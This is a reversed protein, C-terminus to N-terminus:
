NREVYSSLNKIQEISLNTYKSIPELELGDKLMATATEKSKQLSGEEFSIRKVKYIINLINKTM